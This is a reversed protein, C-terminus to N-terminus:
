QIRHSMSKKRGKNCLGHWTASEQLNHLTLGRQVPKDGDGDDAAEEEEESASRTMEVLDENVLPESHCEILSNIDEATMDSFGENAVLRALSVAKDVASHHVEDAMFGEYDHVIDPWLKRWSANLTQQKMEKLANQVNALCTVVNFERWYRKLSFDDDGADISSILGEMTSRTYVRIVGQDMPQILFHHQSAPVGSPGRRLAPGNCTKWDLTLAKTIWAKKNSMWYVPLLAKNKNKLARPNLLKYILGPKLMFGTANGCMLLTVRDKHAKSGPKKVEDKYLFTRSPMRKWFLGTEDMNFVQELIYGGEKILKPFEDEVYRLAAEQDASAAEGYLLVSRLGFRRKFKEFWGKSGVFGRKERPTPDDEDDGDGDNDEENSGGEPVLSDYLTKAKTRIINTNLSVKKVRCDTIWVSLANEMQVIRKNRPTVVLKTDKSFTISATKCIKLEDKKIYHVTSENLRYMSAVSAYSSGAKLMDLLKVKENVTMMKRKKKPESSSTSPTPCKPAM